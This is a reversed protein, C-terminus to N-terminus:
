GMEKLAKLSKLKSAFVKSIEVQKCFIFLLTIGIGIGQSTCYSERNKSYGFKNGETVKFARVEFGKYIFIFTFAMYRFSSLM